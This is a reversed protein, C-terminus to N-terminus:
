EDFVYRASEQDTLGLERAAEAAAERFGLATAMTQWEKASTVEYPGDSLTLVWVNATGLRGDDQDCVLVRTPHGPREHLIYTRHSAFWYRDLAPAIREAMDAASVYRSM